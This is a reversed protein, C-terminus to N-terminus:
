DWDIWNAFNNIHNFISFISIFCSTDKWHKRFFYFFLEYLLNRCFNIIRLKVIAIDIKNNIGFMITASLVVLIGYLIPTTTLKLLHIFVDNSSYGLKEYDKKILKFLKYIDLTSVNSFINNIKENNFNTKLRISKQYTVTQNDKTIIPNYIVWNNNKIDIKKSQIVESLNYNEDFINIITNSIINDKINTSKIIYKKNEVEDKIWLGSKTVMALYKNDTSLQNKTDSYFFKLNSAINYFFVINVIGIGISLLFIFKLISLNNLGNSKYLILENKKFIDYFFFQTSLLM